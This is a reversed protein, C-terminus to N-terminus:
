AQYSKLLSDAGSAGKLVAQAVASAIALGIGGGIQFATNALGGALSRAAPPVAAMMAISVTNYTISIGVVGMLSVPFASVWFSSNSQMVAIPIMTITNLLMGLILLTRIQFRAIFTGIVISTIFGFVGMPVFRIATQLGSLHNVEQAVLVLYMVVTQWWCYMFFGAVWTAAFNPTKWLYLPMVPNKVKKEAYAFAALMTVSVVILAIIYAKGWGVVGGSSLCFTLIIMASTGLGAGLFDLAPKPGEIQKDTPLVFYGLGAVVFGLPAAIRFVWAWGLTDSLIGGFILGVVFGIAGAM